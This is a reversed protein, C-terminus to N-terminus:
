KNAIFNRRLEKKQNKIKFIYELIEDILCKFLHRGDLININEAFLYNKLLQNNNLNESLVITNTEDRDILRNIKYCLKKIGYKSIKSDKFIPLYYLINDNEVKVKIINLFRKIRYIIRKIIDCTEEIERIYIIKM